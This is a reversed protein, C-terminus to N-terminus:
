PSPQITTISSLSGAATSDRIVDSAYAASISPQAVHDLTDLTWAATHRVRVPPVEAGRASRGQGVAIIHGAVIGLDTDVYRICTFNTLEHDGASGGGPGPVREFGALRRDPAM